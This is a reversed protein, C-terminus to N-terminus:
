DDTDEFEVFQSVFADVQTKIGLYAQEAITARKVWFEIAEVLAEDRTKARMGINM